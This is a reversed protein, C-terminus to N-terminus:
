FSRRRMHIKLTLGFNVSNLQEVYDLHLFFKAKRFPQPTWVIKYSTLHGGFTLSASNTNLPSYIGRAGRGKHIAHVKTNIIVSEEVLVQIQNTM